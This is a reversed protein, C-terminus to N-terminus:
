GFTRLLHERWGDLLQGTSMGAVERLALDVAEPSSSGAVRRYLLVLRQEGVRGALYGVVSWAQQYALDLRRGALHFDRDSPLGAPPGEGRVQRVLEPAVQAPAIGSDRYGVYDAFGELMWMPAGDVTDARAAVHTIEHRLVVGLATDSLGAATIPNLVIRPGEVRRAATDVGDAVAVAAIGDVAFEPGVLARLEDSTSPLLVAVRRPWDTGWVRSVRDASEDLMGAVREVLERNDDHGVVLGGATTTTRCSAFDWPGRWTPRGRTELADDSTLYWSDGRRVFLYGMTRRTPVTDVAQLAYELSVRPAWVEDGPVPPVPASPLVDAADVHYAWRSLPVEALNHFLARQRDHFDTPAKPDVSSLFSLEDRARLAAARRELLARVAATRPDVPARPQRGALREPGPRPPSGDGPLSIVSLGAVVAAAAAAAVWGRLTGHGPM